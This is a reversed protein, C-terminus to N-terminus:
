RAVTEPGRMLHKMPCDERDCKTALKAFWFHYYCIRKDSRNDYKEKRSMGSSVPANNRPPMTSAQAYSPNSNRFSNGGTNYNNPANNPRFSNPASTSPRNYDTIPAPRPPTNDIKTNLANVLHTLSDLRADSPGALTANVTTVAEPHKTMYVKYTDDLQKLQAQTPAGKIGLAPIGLSMEYPYNNKMNSWATSKATKLGMDPDSGQLLENVLTLFTTSPKTKLMREKTLSGLIGEDEFTELYTLTTELDADDPISSLLYGPLNKMIMPVYIEAADDATMSVNRRKLVKRVKHAWSCIDSTIPPILNTYQSSMVVTRPPNVMPTPDLVNASRAPNVQPALQPLPVMSSNCPTNTPGGFVYNSVPPIAQNSTASMLRCNEKELRAITLQMKAIQDISIVATGGSVGAIANGLQAPTMTNIPSSLKRKTKTPLQSSVIPTPAVTPPLPASSRPVQAQHTIANSSGAPPSLQNQSSSSSSSSRSTPTGANNNLMATTLQNSSGIDSRHSESASQDTQPPTIANNNLSAQNTSGVDNHHLEIASYDKGEESNKNSSFMGIIYGIIDCIKLINFL